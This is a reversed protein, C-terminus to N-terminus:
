LKVIQKIVENNGDKVTVNYVGGSCTSMDIKVPAFPSIEMEREFIKTGATNVITVLYRKEEVTRLWVDDRVPNPYIDMPQRGDRVLVRFQQSVSQRLVDTATVTIQSLGHLRSAVRLNGDSESVIIINSAANVVTYRLLEGDPDRFYDALPLVTVKDLRDIVLDPITKVREPAQKQTTFPTMAAHANVLKGIKGAYDPNYRDIDTATSILRTRLMEATFGDGKFYSVVLAAVGSVHAAAPSTGTSSRYTNIPGLALINSGPAALSVWDGYNSGPAKKFDLNMNSVAVVKEYAAPFHLEEVGNNGAAAFVIGGRMPGTQVGNEDVGAYEIFYDIAEKLVDNMQDRISGWSCNAIVAGNDAAYKIAAANHITLMTGIGPYNTQLTMIRVGSEPQGNGGAVGCIGLGNNNVAAIAGAMSTGHPDDPIIENNDNTFNWGQNSWMNAKIDVHLVDVGSDIVAVIVDSTGTTFTWAGFINMDAGAICYSSLSGDNHLGWQQSLSPDNFRTAAPFASSRTSFYAQEYESDNTVIPVYEVTKIGEIGSLSQKAENLPTQNDFGVEYWLHLGAKRTREEFRGAHPFVRKMSRLNTQAVVHDANLARTQPIGQLQAAEMKIALEESLQVCLLGQAYEAIVDNNEHLFAKETCSVLM